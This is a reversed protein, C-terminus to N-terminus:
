YLSPIIPSSSLCTKLLPIYRCHNEILLKPISDDILYVDTKSSFAINSDYIDLLFVHSLFHSRVCPSNVNLVESFGAYM